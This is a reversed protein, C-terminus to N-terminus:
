LLLLLLCRQPTQWWEQQVGLQQRHFSGHMTFDPRREGVSSTSATAAQLATVSCLMDYVSISAAWAQKVWVVPGQVRVSETVTYLQSVM